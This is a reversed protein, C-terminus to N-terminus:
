KIVKKGNVIYVGHQLVELADNRQVGEKVKIGSLTYVDVINSQANGKIIEVGSAKAEINRVTFPSANWSYSVSQVGIEYTGPEIDEFFCTATTLYSGFASYATQKGTEKVAPCRMFTKGDKVIYVNYIAKSGNESKMEDWNLTLRKSDADYITEINEPADAVQIVPTSGGGLLTSNRYFMPAGNDGNHPSMFDLMGDGDMDACTMWNDEIDMINYSLDYKCLGTSYSCFTSWSDNGGNGNPLGWSRAFYDVFGDGNFDAMISLCNSSGSSPHIETDVEEFAFKDDTSINRLLLASKGNLSTPPAPRGIAGVIIIDLKGDQDFDVVHTGCENGFHGYRDSTWNVDPNLDTNALTFNGKGDNKYFDLRGGERTGLDSNQNAYGSVIADPYGDNNFDGFLVSGNNTSIFHSDKALKFGEGHQNIYLKTIREQPNSNENQLLLDPYGDMNVDAVSISHYAISGNNTLQKLSSFDCTSTVDTFGKGTGNNKFLRFMAGGRNPHANSWGQGTNDYALIDVAGDQDFDFAYSSQGGYIVPIQANGEDHRTPAWAPTNGAGYNLSIYAHDGWNWKDDASSYTWTEGSFYIDMLGNGDFDALIPTTNKAEVGMRSTFNRNNDKIFSVPQSGEPAPEGIYRFNNEILLEVLEDGRTNYGKSDSVGAYDMLVIGTPGPMYDPNDLYEIMLANTTSANDRYGDSTSISGLFVKSYASLFNYVWAMQRTDNTYHTTTYDLMEKIGRKKDAMQQEKHTEAQDQVFLAANSMEDTGKGVIGCKSQVKWDIWGCWNKFFGGSVPQEAYEDRSFILIKGRMDGLTLDRRFEVFYDKMDERQVLEGLMTAYKEKDSDFSSAYLLHLIAFETPHAKLSDRLLFLADDFRLNTQAIGHNVHLHDGNVKPRFDFARIGISWQQDLTLDQCRSYTEQTSSTFGHGTGSDHTGPISLNTVYVDDPLNGLWDEAMVGNSLCLSMLLMSYFKKKM